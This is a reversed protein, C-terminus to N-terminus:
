QPRDGGRPRDGRRPCLTALVMASLVVGLPAGSLARWPNSIAVAGARELAWTLAIPFLAVAVAVRWASRSAGRVRARVALGAVVTLGAALYIGSCRACVPWRRGGTAFSREPRQHCVLAGAQDAVAAVFALGGDLGGLWPALPVLAAWGAMLCALVAAAVSGRRDSGTMRASEPVSGGPVM